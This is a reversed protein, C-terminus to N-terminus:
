RERHAGTLEDIAAVVARAAEPTALPRFHGSERLRVGRMGDPVRNRPVHPDIQPLVVRIRADASREAALAALMENSPDFERIYQGPLLRARSSGAFPTALAVLGDPQPRDPHLARDVLLRKGILGGKSHGVLVIRALPHAAAIRDVADGVIPASDLVPLLNRGLEPVFHVAFGARALRRGLPEMFHWREVVGPICLVHVRAGPMGLLPPRSPDLTSRLHMRAAFAYDRAWVAVEARDIPDIDRLRPPVLSRLPVRM